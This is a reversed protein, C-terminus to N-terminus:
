LICKEIKVLVININNVSVGHIQKIKKGGFEKLLKQTKKQFYSALFVDVMKENM